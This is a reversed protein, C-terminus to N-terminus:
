LTLLAMVTVITLLLVLIAVLVMPRSRKRQKSQDSGIYPSLDVNLLKSYAKLAERLEDRPVYGFEEQEIAQLFEWRVGCAISAAHLSLGLQQRARAMQVGLRPSRVSPSPSIPPTPPPPVAVEPTSPKPPSATNVSSVSSTPPSVITRARGINSKSRRLVAEIRAVLQGQNFPKSLYDDAGGSLGRVIDEDGDKATLMIIPIRSSSRIQRCLDWGSIEPMMVDLLILDPQRRALEIMADQSRQYTVVEYGAGGLQYELLQCILPEDDIAMIYTGM